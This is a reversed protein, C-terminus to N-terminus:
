LSLSLSVLWVPGNGPLWASIHHCRGTHEWDRRHPLVISGRGTGRFVLLLEHKQELALGATLTSRSSPSFVSM